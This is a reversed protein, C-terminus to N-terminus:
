GQHAELMLAELLVLYNRLDGLKEQALEPTYTLKGDVLDMVSALHKLAYMWLVEQPKKGSIRAGVKFNELKDEGPAYEANKGLLVKTQHEQLETLFKTFDKHNM